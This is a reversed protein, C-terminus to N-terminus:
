CCQGMHAQGMPLCTEIGENPLRASSSDNTKELLLNAHNSGVESLNPQKKDRIVLFTCSCLFVLEYVLWRSYIALLSISLETFSSLCKRQKDYACSVHRLYTAFRTVFM